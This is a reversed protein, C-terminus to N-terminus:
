HHSRGYVFSEILSPSKKAASLQERQCAERIQGRCRRLIQKRTMAGDVDHNRCHGVFLQLSVAMLKHFRWNARELGLDMSLAWVDNM